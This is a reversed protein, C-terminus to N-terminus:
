EGRLYQLNALSMQRAMSQTNGYADSVVIMDYESGAWKGPETMQGFYIEYGTVMRIMPESDDNHRDVAIMQPSIIPANSADGLLTKMTSSRLAPMTWKLILCKGLGQRLGRQRVLNMATWTKGSNKHLTGVAFYCGTDPVSLTWYEDERDFEVSVVRVLGAHCDWNIKGQSSWGLILSGKELRCLPIWKESTGFNAVFHDEAGVFEVDAAHSDETIAHVRLLRGRGKCFPRSGWAAAVGNDRLTWVKLARDWECIPRIEGTDADELPTEPALCRVGGELLLERAKSKFARSQSINPGGPLLFDPLSKVEAILEESVEHEFESTAITELAIKGKRLLVREQAARYEPRTKVYAFYETNTLSCSAVAADLDIGGALKKIIIRHAQEMSEIRTKAVPANKAKTM